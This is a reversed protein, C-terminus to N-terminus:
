NWAPCSNEKYVCFDCLNNVFTPFHEEVICKEITDIIEGLQLKAKEIDRKNVKFNIEEGLRVYHWILKINEASYKDQILTAYLQLQRKYGGKRVYRKEDRFEIEADTDYLHMRRLLRQYWKLNSVPLARNTKYDHIEFIGDENKDLRDILGQIKREKPLDIIIKEEVSINNEQFPFKLKHYTHLCLKGMNKYHIEDFKDNSKVCTPRKKKPFRSFYKDKKSEWLEDYENILSEITNDIENKYLAELTDHVRSGMFTNLQTEDERNYLIYKQLFQYPCTEFTDLRSHSYTMKPAKRKNYYSIFELGSINERVPILHKKGKKERWLKPEVWDESFSPFEVYEVKSNLTFVDKDEPIITLYIVDAFDLAEKYIRSGGIFWIDEYKIGKKEKIKREKDNIERRENEEEIFNLAKEISNFCTEGKIKQRTIIINLRDALPRFKSPLSEWTNRGMIVVNKRGWVTKNYFFKMDEPYKGEWLLKNGDGIIGGKSYDLRDNPYVAAIIGKM